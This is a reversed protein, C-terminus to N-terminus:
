FKLVIAEAVRCYKMETKNYSAVIEGSARWPQLYTQKTMKQKNEDKLGWIALVMSNVTNQM